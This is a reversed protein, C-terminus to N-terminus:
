KWENEWESKKTKWEKFEKLDKRNKEYWDYYRCKCTCFRQNDRYVLYDMGCQVCIRRERVKFKPRRM